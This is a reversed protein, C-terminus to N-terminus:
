EFLHTPIHTISPPSDEPKRWMTRSCKYEISSIIPRTETEHIEVQEVRSDHIKDDVM